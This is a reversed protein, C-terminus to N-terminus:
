YAVDAYWDNKRVENQEMYTTPDIDDYIFAHVVEAAYDRDFYVYSGVGSLTRPATMQYEDLPIRSQEMTPSNLMVKMAISFIEDVSLSTETCPVLAKILKLYQSKEMGKVANFLQEMVYRQRETRGQDNNTGWINAVYRIRSYGVAQIGNLHQKGPTTIYYDNPDVGLEVCIGRITENIAKVGTSVPLVENETLEVDIGGVADIIDAMGFFNVTAYESIDLNFNQNITKIALEPGGIAYASNIKKFSSSGENEIEVLSDRMISILKIKKTQTNISLIMISDTNGTLSETDRTDVGFLAVNIVKKNIIQDFGLESNTKDIDNYNYDLIPALQTVAVILVTLIVALVSLLVILGTKRKKKKNKKAKKKSNKESRYYHEEMEVSSSSFVDEFEMEEGRASSSYIDNSENESNTEFNFIDDNKM